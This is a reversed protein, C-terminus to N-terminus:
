GAPCDWNCLETLPRGLNSVSQLAFYKIRLQLFRWNLASISARIADSNFMQCAAIDNYKTICLIDRHAGAGIRNQGEGGQTAL